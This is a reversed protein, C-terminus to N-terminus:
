RGSTPARSGSSLVQGDEILVILDREVPLEFGAHAVEVVDRVRDAIVHQAAASHQATCASANPHALVFRSRLGELYASREVYAQMDADISPLAFAPWLMPSRSAAARQQGVDVKGANEAHM